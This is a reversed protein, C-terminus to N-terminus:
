KDAKVPMFVDALLNNEEQKIFIIYSEGTLELDNEYAFLQLKMSAFQLKDKWTPIKKGLYVTAFSIVFATAFSIGFSAVM